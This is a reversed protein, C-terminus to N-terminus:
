RWRCQLQGFILYTAFAQVNDPLLQGFTGVIDAAFIDGFFYQFHEFPLVPVKLLNVSAEV